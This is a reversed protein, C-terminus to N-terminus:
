RMTRQQIDQRQRRFTFAVVEERSGEGIVEFTLGCNWVHGFPGEAPGVRIAQALAQIPPGPLDPLSFRIELRDGIKIEHDFTTFFMLGSGSLDSLRGERFREEGRPRRKSLLDIIQQLKDEISEVRKLLLRQFDSEADFGAGRDPVRSEQDRALILAALEVAEDSSVHRFLVKERTLIRVFERRESSAM